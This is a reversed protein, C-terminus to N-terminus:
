QQMEDTIVLGRATSGLKEKVHWNIFAMMYDFGPLYPNGTEGSEDLHFFRM